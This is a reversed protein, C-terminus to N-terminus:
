ILKKIVLQIFENLAKVHQQQQAKIEEIDKEIGAMKEEIHGDKKAEDKIENRSDRRERLLNFVLPIAIGLVVWFIPHIEISQSHNVALLLTMTKLPHQM